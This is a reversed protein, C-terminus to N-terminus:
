YIYIILIMISKNYLDFSPFAISALLIAADSACLHLALMIVMERKQVKEIVLAALVELHLHCKGLDIVQYEKGMWEAQGIEVGTEESVEKEVESSMKTVSREIAPFNESNDM